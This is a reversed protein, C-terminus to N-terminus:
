SDVLQEIIRGGRHLVVIIQVAQAFQIIFQIFECIGHILKDVAGGPEIVAQASQQGARFFQNLADVLQGCPRGLELLPCFAQARTGGLKLSPSSGQMLTKILQGSLVIRQVAARDLNELGQQGRGVALQSRSSYLGGLECHLVVALYQVTHNGGGPFGRGRLLHRRQFGRQVAVVAKVLPKLVVGSPHRLGLVSGPLQISAHISQFVARVTQRGARALQIVANQGHLAASGGQDVAHGLQPISGHFQAVAQLLEILLADM